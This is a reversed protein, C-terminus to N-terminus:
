PRAPHLSEFECRHWRRFFPGPDSEHGYCWGLDDLKILLKHVAGCAESAAQDEEAVARCRAVAEGWTDIMHVITKTDTATSVQNEAFLDFRGASDAAASAAFSVIGIM